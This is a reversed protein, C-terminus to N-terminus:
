RGELERKKKEDIGVNFDVVRATLLIFSNITREETIERSFLFPLIHGLVPLTRKRKQDFVRRFGGLIATQGDQLVIANELIQGVKIPSDSIQLGDIATLEATVNMTIYGSEAVTPQVDLKLGADMTQTEYINAYSSARTVYTVRQGDLLTAPRNNLTILHPTNRVRGIGREQVLHVFDAISAQTAFSLGRNILNDHQSRQGGGQSGPDGYVDRNSEDFQYRIRSGSTRLLEDWDVGLDQAKGEDVEVISAEIEIQRPPLDVAEALKRATELDEHTGVLLLQNAGFHPRVQVMHTGNGGQWRLELSGGNDTAGLLPLLDGVPTFKPNFSRVEIPNPDSQSRADNCLLSGLLGLLFPIMAHRM